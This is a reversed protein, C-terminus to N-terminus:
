LERCDNGERFSVAKRVQFQITPISERKRKPGPRNEPANATLELSHVEDYKSDGVCANRGGFFVHFIWEKGCWTGLFAARQNSMTRHRRDELTLTCQGKSQPVM